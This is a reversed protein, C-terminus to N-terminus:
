NEEDTALYLMSTAQKACDCIASELLHTAQKLDGRRKAIRALILKAPSHSCCECSLEEAIKSAEAEAEDIQGLTLLLSALFLQGEYASPDTPPRSILANRVSAIARDPNNCAIWMDALLRLAALDGSGKYAAICRKAASDRLEAEAEIRALALLAPPYEKHRKLIKQIEETLKAANSGALSKASELEIDAREEQLSRQESSPALRIRQDQFDLADDYRRLGRSLRVLGQLAPMSQPSSKLALALNDKAATANDLSENLDAALFLLELNQKQTQRAEDLIQLAEKYEECDRYTIALLIRTVVDNPNQNVVKRYITRAKAVDGAARFGRAEVIMKEHNRQLETSKKLKRYALRQSIVFFLMLLFMFLGGAFFIGIIALAAPGEWTNGKSLTIAVPDPNLWFVYGLTGVVLILLCLLIILRPISPLKKM